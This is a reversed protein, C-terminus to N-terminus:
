KARRIAGRVMKAMEPQHRFYGCETMYSEMARCAELLDPAGVVLSWASANLIQAVPGGQDVILLPDSPHAEWKKPAM